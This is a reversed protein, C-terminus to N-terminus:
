NLLISPWSISIRPIQNASFKALPTPAAIGILSGHHNLRITKGLSPQAPRACIQANRKKVPEPANLIAHEVPAYCALLVYAWTERSMGSVYAQLM